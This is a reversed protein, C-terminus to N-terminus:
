SSVRVSRSWNTVMQLTASTNDWKSPLERGSHGPTHAANDFSDSFTDPVSHVETIATLPEEADRSSLTSPSVPDQPLDQLAYVDVSLNQLGALGGEVPSGEGISPGYNPPKAVPSENPKFLARMSLETFCKSELEDRSLEEIRLKQAPLRSYEIYYSLQNSFGQLDDKL